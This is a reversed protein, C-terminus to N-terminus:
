ENVIAKRQNGSLHPMRRDLKFTKLGMKSYIWLNFIQVPISRYGVENEFQSAASV